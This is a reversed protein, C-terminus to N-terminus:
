LTINNLTKWISNRNIWCIWFGLVLFMLGWRWLFTHVFSYSAGSVEVLYVMSVLRVINGVFVFIVGAVVGRAKGVWNVYGKQSDESNEEKWIERPTALILATLALMSKWGTSDTSVNVYLGATNLFVGSSSAEIGIIDLIGASIYANFSRLWIPNWQSWIFLYLPAALITFGALFKFVTWLRRNKPSLNEEFEKIKEMM